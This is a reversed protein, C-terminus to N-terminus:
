AAPSSGSHGDPAVLTAIDLPRGSILRQEAQRLETNSIEGQVWLKTLARGDASLELGELRLSGAVSAAIHARNM